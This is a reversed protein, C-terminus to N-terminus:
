QDPVSLTVMTTFGAGSVSAPFSVATQKPFGTVSCPEPPFEKKHCGPFKSFSEVLALGTAVRCVVVVKVRVEKTPFQEPFSLTVITTSGAGCISAPFSVETQKPLVIM